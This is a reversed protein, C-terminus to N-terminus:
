LRPFPDPAEYENTAKDNTKTFDKGKYKLAKNSNPLRRDVRLSLLKNIIIM